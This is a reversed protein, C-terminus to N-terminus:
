NVMGTDPLEDDYLYGWKQLRAHYQLMRGAGDCAVYVGNVLAISVFNM